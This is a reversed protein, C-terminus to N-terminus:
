ARASFNSTGESDVRCTEWEDAGPRDVEVLDDARSKAPFRTNDRASGLVTYPVLCPGVGIGTTSSGPFPSRGM